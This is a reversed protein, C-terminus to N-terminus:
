SAHVKESTLNPNPIVIVMPSLHIAQHRMGPQFVRSLCHSMPQTSTTAKLHRTLDRVSPCSCSHCKMTCPSLLPTMSPHHFLLLWFLAVLSTELLEMFKGPGLQNFGGEVHNIDPALEVRCICGTSPDEWRFGKEKWWYLEWCFKVM